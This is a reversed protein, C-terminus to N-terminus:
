PLKTVCGRIKAGEAFLVANSTLKEQMLGKNSTMLYRLPHWERGRASTNSFVNGANTLSRGTRERGARNTEAIHSPTRRSIAM